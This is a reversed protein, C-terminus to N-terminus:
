ICRMYNSLYERRGHRMFYPEEEDSWEPTAYKIASTAIKHCIKEDDSYYFHRHHIADGDDSLMIEIGDFASTAFAAQAIFENNNM